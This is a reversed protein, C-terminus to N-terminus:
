TEEDILLVGRVLAQSDATRTFDRKRAYEALDSM